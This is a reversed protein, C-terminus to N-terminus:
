VKALFLERTPERTFGLSQVNSFHMKLSEMFADRNYTDDSFNVNYDLHNFYKIAEDQPDIWEVILLENTIGKFFKIMSDMNGMISTCSFIWHILALANVIDAKISWESVNQTHVYLKSYNLKGIAKNMLSTYDADMDIANVSAGRQRALFSFFGGAAGLDLFSKGKLFDNSLVSSLLEFKRALDYSDTSATISDKTITFEQYGGITVSNITSKIWPKPAHRNPQKFINPKRKLSSLWRKVGM